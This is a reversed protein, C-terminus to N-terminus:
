ISQTSITHRQTQMHTPIDILMTDYVYVHSAYAVLTLPVATDIHATAARIADIQAGDKLIDSYEM